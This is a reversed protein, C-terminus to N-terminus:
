YLDHSLELAGMVGWKKNIPQNMLESNTIYTDIVVNELRKFAVNTIFEQMLYDHVQCCKLYANDNAGKMYFIIISHAREPKHYDFDSSYELRNLYVDCVPQKGFGKLNNEDFGLNVKSFVKNDNDDTLNELNSKLWESITAAMKYDESIKESIELQYSIEPNIEINDTM